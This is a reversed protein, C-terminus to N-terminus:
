AFQSAEWTKRYAAELQRVYRPEDMLVSDTLRQRLTTRLGALRQDDAALKAAIQVYREASDAILERLDLNSLISVGARGVPLRGALTVVGVGMWLADLTTTGGGYPFPDLALDIRNYLNLYEDRGVRPLAILRELPIGSAAFRRLVSPNAAGGPVHIALRSDPVAAMLKAWVRLVADNAKTLTNLSGFTIFGNKMVPPAAPPPASPSARYCWYCDPLVLMRETFFQEGGDALMHPDTVCWDMTALGSTGCYALHAIQVPAPKQAFVGLRCGRMHLNLDVLIDIRDDRILQTLQSDNLSSTDRWRNARSKLKHAMSDLNPADNYCFVEFQERDHHELIPEMFFGIVHTRLNPSLYAVRLKRGSTRISQPSQVQQSLPEASRRSWNLHEELIQQPTSDPDFYLAYCLNSDAERFDDKLAVVQRFSDIAEKIRGGERLCSGLMNFAPALAPNIAIAKRFADEAEDLKDQSRLAKGLNLYAWPEQPRLPAAARFSEAADEFKGQRYLLAGLNQHAPALTPDLRVAERLAAEALNRRGLSDLVAALNYHYVATVPAAAIARQILAAADEFRGAAQAILGLCHLAPANTPSSQLVQRALAEAEAPRGSRLLEVAQRCTQELTLAAM